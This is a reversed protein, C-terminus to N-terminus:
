AGAKTLPVADDEPASQAPIVPEHFELQNRRNAILGEPRIRMLIILAVGFALLQYNSLFELKKPILFLLTAGVLPGSITGMGGLIVAALLFASNPPLAEAFTYQDPTVTYSVHAQVTGALGALCAGLAFALLKLRFGNIGMAEAATEDERIAVWARGIRSNGVRAFVLVVVATIILMLLYYNSFRGLEIGGVLHKKGLDFGLIQLDPIRPIGNSGNTVNPGTTGNLNNMTIRFIEGFGLTVIALYDGRLRLTPAGILVGFVMAAAAGTLAAAWFPFAVHIPSAPSGSVLAAAYAGVGLFAVYGLDLLGALGVVINLGLAVTAFILINAAVSTYQDSTQTFPFAAAASFAAGTAVPRHKVTLARLRQLLGTKALAAVTFGTLILYGTFLEGYETDIGFTIAFLGIAFAAIILLVEVWSPLERAPPLKREIKALRLTRTILHHVPYGIGAALLWRYDPKGLSDATRRDLPLGLAGTVALLSTLGALWGGPELNALGGLDVAIAIIAFWSVAATGLAALLIGNNGGAPSTWRLGPIGYRALTLVATILGGILTLWQLGAPSGYFTLDGPFDATWTWATLATGATAVAALVTFVRAAREPVPIVPTIETTM